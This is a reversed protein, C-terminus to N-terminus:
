PAPITDKRGIPAATPPRSRHPRPNEALTRTRAPGCCVVQGALVKAKRQFTPQKAWSASLVRKPAFHADLRDMVKELELLLTLAHKTARAYRSEKMKVACVLRDVADEITVENEVAFSGTSVRSMFRWREDGVDARVVQVRLDPGGDTRDLVCDCDADGVDLDVEGWIGPDLEGLHDRLRRTAAVETGRGEQGPSTKTEIEDRSRPAYHEAGSAERTLWFEQQGSPGVLTLTELGCPGLRMRM